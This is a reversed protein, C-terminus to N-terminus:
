VVGECHMTIDFSPSLVYLEPRCLEFEGEGFYFPIFKYYIATLHKLNTVTDDLKESALRCLLRAPLVLPCSKLVGLASTRATHLSLWTQAWEANGLRPVFAAPRRADGPRGGARRNPQQQAHRVPPIHKAAMFHCDRLDSRRVVARCHAAERIAALDRQAAM